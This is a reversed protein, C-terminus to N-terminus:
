RLSGPNESRGYPLVERRVEPLKWMSVMEGAFYPATDDPYLLYELGTDLDLEFQRGIVVKRLLEIRLREMLNLLMLAGEEENESYVCFISRVQAKSELRQGGPQQDSGTIIQHIIYPAKKFAATGDPLRMRYVQAARPEPPAKDEKQQRVPLILDKITEETFAKLQDLLTVRDM